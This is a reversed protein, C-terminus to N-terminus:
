PIKAPMVVHVYEFVIDKLVFLKPRTDVAVFIVQMGQKTDADFLIYRCNSFEDFSFGSVPYVDIFQGGDSKFPLCV